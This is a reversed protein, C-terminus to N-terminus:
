VTHSKWRGRRFLLASVGALTSFAITIAIFVGHVGRGMPLALLYALPIEWLWFVGVNIATPTRTDGAGNFAQTLVMGYAYLPFGLAVVRLCDAGYRLVAPDTSFISVM